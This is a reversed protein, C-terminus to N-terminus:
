YSNTRAFVKPSCGFKEKFCKTFYASSCFGVRFCIETVNGCKNELLQVARSLRYSRIFLQPSEGTLDKVKRYFSSRSMNLKVWLKEVSFLPNSLNREIIRHLQGVFKSDAQIVDPHIAHLLSWVRIKELLRQRNEVLNKIRVKLININFPRVICDDVGCEYGKIISEESGQDYVLFLPILGTDNDNKFANCWHIDEMGPEAMNRIVLQPGFKKVLDLVGANDPVEEINYESLLMERLRSQEVPIEGVVLILYKDNGKNV